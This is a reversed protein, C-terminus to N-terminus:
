KSSARLTGLDVLFMIAKLINIDPEPIVDVIRRVSFCQEALDLVAQEVKSWSEGCCGVPAAQFELQADM